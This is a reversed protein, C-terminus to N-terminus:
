SKVNENETIEKTTWEELILGRKELDLSREIKDFLFCDGCSKKLREFGLSAEKLTEYDFDESGFKESYLVIKYSM